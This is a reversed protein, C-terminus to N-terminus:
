NNKLIEDIKKYISEKANLSNDFVKEKNQILKELFVEENILYFNISNVLEDYSNCFFFSDLYDCIKSFQNKINHQYEHILFPKELYLCKDMITSQKGIILDHKKIMKLSFNHCNNEYM